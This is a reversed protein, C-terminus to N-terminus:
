SSLSPTQSAAPHTPQSHTKKPNGFLMCTHDTLQKQLKGIKKKKQDWFPLWWRELQRFWRWWRREGQREGEGEGGGGRREGRRGQWGGGLSGEWGARWKGGGKEGGGAEM